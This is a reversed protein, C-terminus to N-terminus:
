YGRSITFPSSLPSWASVLLIQPNSEQSNSPGTMGFVKFIPTTGAQMTSLIFYPGCFMVPRGPTDWHPLVIFRANLGVAVFLRRMEYIQDGSVSFTWVQERRLSFVDLSTKTKFIVNATLVAYFM